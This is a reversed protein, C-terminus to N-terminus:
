IDVQSSWPIGLYSTICQKQTHRHPCKQFLNVISGTSWSPLDLRPPCWGIQQLGPYFWFASSSWHETKQLQFVKKEKGGVKQCVLCCPVVKAASLMGWLGSGTPVQIEFKGDEVVTLFGIETRSLRGLRLCKTVANCIHPSSGQLLEEGADM